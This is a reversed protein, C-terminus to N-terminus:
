IEIHRSFDTENQETRNEVNGVRPAMLCAATRQCWRVTALGNVAGIHNRKWSSLKENETHVGHRHCLELTMSTSRSNTEPFNKAGMWM